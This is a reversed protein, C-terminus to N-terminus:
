FSWSGTVRGFGNDINIQIKKQQVWQMYEEWMKDAVAQYEKWRGTEDVSIGAASYPIHNRRLAHAILKLLCAIAAQEWNYRFPFENYTMPAVPPLAENWYDIPKRICSMIERASFEYDDLLVNVSPCDRLALRIDAISIPMVRQSTDVNNQEIEVYCKRIFLLKGATDRLQIDGIYLGAKSTNDLSFNITVVGNGVYEADVEVIQSDMPHQKIWLKASAVGSADEVDVDEPDTEPVVQDTPEPDVGANFTDATTLKIPTNFDDVLTLQVSQEMFQNVTIVPWDKPCSQSPVVSDGDSPPCPNM